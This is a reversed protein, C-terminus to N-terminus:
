DHREVQRGFLQWLSPLLVIVAITYAFDELPALGIFAGSIHERNYGCLGLAIMLNDFVATLALLPVAALAIARWRPSRHALVAAAAVIAVLALFIANLTWYSVVGGETPVALRLREDHPLVAPRPFGS